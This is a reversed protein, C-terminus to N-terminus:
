PAEQGRPEHVYSLSGMQEFGGHRGDSTIVGYPGSPDGNSGPISLTRECDGHLRWIMALSRRLM